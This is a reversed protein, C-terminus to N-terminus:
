VGLPPFRQDEGWLAQPAKQEPKTEACTRCRRVYRAVDEKVKSWYYKSALRWYTKYVGAHDATPVDHCKKM